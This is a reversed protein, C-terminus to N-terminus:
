EAIAYGFNTWIYHPPRIVRDGVIFGKGSPLSELTAERTSLGGMASVRVKLEEGAKYLRERGTYYCDPFREIRFTM